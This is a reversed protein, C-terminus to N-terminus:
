MDLANNPNVENWADQLCQVFQALVANKYAYKAVYIQCARKITDRGLYYDMTKIWSAGKRYSIMDFTSVADGTHNIVASIPHTSPKLDADLAAQL